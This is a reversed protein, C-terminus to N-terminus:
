KTVDKAPVLKNCELKIDSVLSEKKLTDYRSTFKNDSLSYMYGNPKEIFLGEEAVTSAYLRDSGDAKKLVFIMKDGKKVKTEGSDYGARGIQALLIKENDESGYLVDDIKIESVALAVKYANPDSLKNKESDSISSSFDYMVDKADGVVEGSIILDATKIIDGMSNITRRTMMLDKSGVVKKASVDPKNFFIAGALIIITLGFIVGIKISRNM